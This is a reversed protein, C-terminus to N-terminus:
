AVQCVAAGQVPDPAWCPVKADTLITQLQKAQTDLVQAVPKGNLCIEQFTDKFIQSVANDQSGLGVPPLALIANPAHQQASVAAAQLKAVTPLDNPLAANVVPFFSNQRLTEVQAEPQSLATIVAKAKEINPAGRPIALGAIVVMYGLGKPGTPAPVMLWQDPKDGPAKALRAVHDWAVLVEGRQLPEQMYDYNTSAPNMHTWLERMYTWADVAAQSRFTTIQGGTFSPLLYGQYFRHHLGKPGAPMGFVPKGNAQQAAKAWALFQDYTLKNVDAGSPLWELAKKNVALVYTAQMWPVYKKRSTGLTALELLNTPYGRAALRTLLDDVDEFMDNFPTLDGHLGGVMSVQVSKAKFQAKLTSSFTSPDVSNFAVQTGAAYKKLITEFRQREEIPAFQSSLFGVTDGGGGAGSTTAGGCAALVPGSVFAGLGIGLV